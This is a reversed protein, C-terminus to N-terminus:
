IDIFCIITNPPLVYGQWVQPERIPLNVQHHRTYGGDWVREDNISARPAIEMQTLAETLAVGERWIEENQTRFAQRSHHVIQLPLSPNAFNRQARPGWRDTMQQWNVVVKKEAPGLFRFTENQWIGESCIFEGGTLFDVKVLALNTNASIDFQKKSPTKMSLRIAPLDSVDERGKLCFNQNCMQSQSPCGIPNKLSALKFRVRKLNYVRQPIGRSINGSKTMSSTLAISEDIM